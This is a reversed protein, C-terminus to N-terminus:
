KFLYERMGDGFTKRGLEAGGGHEDEVGNKRMRIGTEEEARRNQRGGRKEKM